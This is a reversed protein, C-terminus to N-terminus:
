ARAHKSRAIRGAPSPPSESPGLVSDRPRDPSAVRPPLIGPQDSLFSHHEYCSGDSFSRLVCFAAKERQM